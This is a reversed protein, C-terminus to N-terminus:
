LDIGWFFTKKLWFLPWKPQLHIQIYVNTIYTLTKGWGSGRVKQMSMFNVGSLSKKKRPVMGFVFDRIAPPLDVWFSSMGCGGFNWISGSFHHNGSLGTRNPNLLKESAISFKLKPPPTCTQMREDGEPFITTIWRARRDKASNGSGMFPGGGQQGPSARWSSMWWFGLPVGGVVNGYTEGLFYAPGLLLGLEPVITTLLGLFYPRSHRPPPPM